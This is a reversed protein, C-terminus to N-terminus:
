FSITIPVADAYNGAPKNQAGPITGYVNMTHATGDGTLGSAVAATNSKWITERASDSFLNYNLLHSSGDSLQRQNSSGEGSTGVGLVVKPAAGSTCTLSITGSGNLADTKNEYIYSYEGFALSSTGVLCEKEVYATVNLTGSNQTEEAFAVSAVSAIAVMALVVLTKKM